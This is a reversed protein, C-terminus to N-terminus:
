INRQPIFARRFSELSRWLGLKMQGAIDNKKARCRDLGTLAAVYDPDIQVLEQYVKIAGDYDHRYFELLVALKYLAEISYPDVALLKELAAKAQVHEGVLECIDAKDLLWQYRKPQLAIAKDLYNQAIFFQRRKKYFQYATYAVEANKLSARGEQSLVKKLVIDAERLDGMKLLANVLVLEAAESDPAIALAQHAQEAAEVASGNGLYIQALAIHAKVYGPKLALAKKYEDIAAGSSGISAFMDAAALHVEPDAPFRALLDKLIGRAESFATRKTLRGLEILASAKDLEPQKAIQNPETPYSHAQTSPGHANFARSPLASMGGTRALLCVFLLALSLRWRPLIMERQRENGTAKAIVLFGTESEKQCPLLIKASVDYDVITESLPSCGVSEADRVAQWATRGARWYTLRLVIGANEANLASM